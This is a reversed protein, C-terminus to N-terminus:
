NSGAQQELYVSAIQLDIPRTIKINEANGQILHISVGLNELVSADDTFSTNSAQQFAKKILDLQFVQPTQISKYQTRDVAHNGNDNIKRMSDNVDICPIANGKEIATNLLEDLLSKTIFPRVADHIFVVGDNPLADLGKKVSEFRTSGGTLIKIQNKKDFYQLLEDEDFPDNEPLILLVQVNSIYQLFCNIAYTYLPKDNLLMFQKPLASQMRQGRGAAVVIAYKNM